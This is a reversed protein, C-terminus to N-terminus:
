TTVPILKVTMYDSQSELTFLLEYERTSSNVHVLISGEALYAGERILTIYGNGTGTSSDGDVYFDWNPNVDTYTSGEKFTSQLILEDTSFNKFSTESGTKNFKFRVHNNELVYYSGNDYANVEGNSVILLDGLNVTTRPELIEAGTDMRWRLENDQITIEGKQIEIPIVRQAGQGELAIDKVHQNISLLSDRTRSFISKDKMDEVVPTLAELVIVLILATILIYLIASIWVQGKKM